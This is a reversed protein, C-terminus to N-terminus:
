CRGGLEDRIAVGLELLSYPKQLFGSAGLALAAEVRENQSYGSAIIWKLDPRLALMRRCTELGDIGPDMIMDLLVLDVSQKKVFEVGEEGSSVVQVRYGLKRLSDSAVMRQMDDDDVVLITQNRGMVESLSVSSSASKLLEKTAPFLLEFVTGEPGSRVEVHGDHSMITNWVVALGLGTGARGLMRKTYFPEFIRDIDEERIGSGTDSIALRVYWGPVVEGVGSLPEDLHCTETVIRVVGENSIAEVANLVLNMLAKQIHVPTCYMNMLDPDLSTEIQVNPRMRLVNRLQSSKLYSGIITNLNEVTKESAVGRTVTLLDAVVAAARMGAERIAELPQILESDEPLDDLLLEPYATIGSLINNLDHAVGGAMVGLADMRRLRNMKEDLVLREEQLRKQDTIDINYEVIQVVDGAENLVPYSHVQVIKKEGNVMRVQEVTIPTGAQKVDKLLCAQGEDHCPQGRGFIYEYCKTSGPMQSENGAAANAMRVEYTEADIVCVPNTVADLVTRLFKEARNLRDHADREKKVVAKIKGSVVVSLLLVALFISLMIVLRVMLYHYQIAAVEVERKALQQQCEYMLNNVSEHMRQFLPISKLLHQKVQAINTAFQETDGNKRYRDQNELLEELTDIREAVDALKPRLEIVVLHYLSGQDVEYEYRTTTKDLLGWNLLRVSEFTGGQELVLLYQNISDIIEKLGDAMAEQGYLGSQPAQQFYGVELRALADDIEYGILQRHRENKSREDLQATMRDFTLEVLLLSIIGCLFLAILANVYVFISPHKRSM